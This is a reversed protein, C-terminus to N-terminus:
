ISAIPEGPLIFAAGVHFSGTPHIARLANVYFHSYVSADYKAANVTFSGGGHREGKIAFITFLARQNPAYIVAAVGFARTVTVILWANVLFHRASIVASVWFEPRRTLLYGTRSELLFAGARSELLFLDRMAGAGSTGLLVANIPVLRDSLVADVSFASHSGGLFVADVSLAGFNEEIDLGGSGDELLVGGTGDEKLLANRNPHQTLLYHTRSELLFAGARSEILFRDSM